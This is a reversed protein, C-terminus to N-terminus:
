LDAYHQKPAVLAHGYAELQEPLFAIVKENEYVIWSPIQRDIIQCFQCNDM